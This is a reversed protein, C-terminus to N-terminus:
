QIVCQIYRYQEGTAFLYYSNNRLNTELWGQTDPEWPESICDILLASASSYIETWPLPPPQQSETEAINEVDQLYPFTDLDDVADKNINSEYHQAPEVRRLLSRVTLNTLLHERHLLTM